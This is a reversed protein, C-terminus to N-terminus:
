LQIPPGDSAARVLDFVQRETSIVAGDPMNNVLGIALAETRGPHGRDVDRFLHHGEGINDVFISM